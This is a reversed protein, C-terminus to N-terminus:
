PCTRLHWVEPFFAPAPLPHRCKSWFPGSSIGSYRFNITLNTDWFLIMSSHHVFLRLLTTTTSSLHLLRLLLQPIFLPIHYFYRYQRGTQILICKNSWNWLIKYKLITQWYAIFNFHFWQHCKNWDSQHVKFIPANLCLCM